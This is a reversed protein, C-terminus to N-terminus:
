VNADLNNSLFKQYTQILNNLVYPDANAHDFTISLPVTLQQHSNQRQGFYFLPRGTKLIGRHMQFSTFNFYPLNGIFHSIEYIFPTLNGLDRKHNKISNRYVRSFTTWDMFIVDNIVVNKFRNEGGVAVPFYLPLNRFLYWEQEIKRTNFTWEVSFAKVLNWILYATFSAGQANQFSQEYVDRAATLNLHITISLNPNLVFEEDHFFSFAWQQYKSLEDRNIKTGQYRELAEQLDMQDIVLQIEFIIEIGDRLSYHILREKILSISFLNANASRSQTTDWLVGIQEIIFLVGPRICHTGVPHTASIKFISRFYM